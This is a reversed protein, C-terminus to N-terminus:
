FEPNTKKREDLAAQTLRMMTPVDKGLAEAILGLKKLSPPRKATEIGSIAEQVLGVREGLESQTLPPAERRLRRVVRGFEVWFNQMSQSRKKKGM